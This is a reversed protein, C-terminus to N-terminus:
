HELRARGAGDDDNRRTVFSRARMREVLGAIHRPHDADGIGTVVTTEGVRDAIEAARRIRRQRQRTLTERCTIPRRFDDVRAVVAVRQASYAVAFAHIWGARA